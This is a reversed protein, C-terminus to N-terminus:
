PKEAAETIRVERCSLKERRSVQKWTAVDGSFGAIAGQICMDRSEHIYAPLIENEWFIGWAHFTKSKSKNM